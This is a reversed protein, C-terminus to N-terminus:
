RDALARISNAVTSLELSDGIVVVLDAHSRARDHDTTATNFRRIHDAIEDWIHAPVTGLGLSPWLNPRAVIAAMLGVRVSMDLQDTLAAGGHRPDPHAIVLDILERATTTVGAIV